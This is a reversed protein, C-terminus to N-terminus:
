KHKSHCGKCNLAVKFDSAGDVAKKAEEIMKGTREKWEKEDGKNPKNQSLATFMAVLKEKEEKSADGGAVKKTLGGAMAGKLVQKTTYKPKDDQAYVFGAGCVAALGMMGVMLKRM